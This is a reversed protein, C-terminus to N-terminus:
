HRRAQGQCGAVGQLPQAATKFRGGNSDDFSFKDAIYDFLGLTVGLFSSVVAINAFVNLLTSLKEGGGVEGLVSMLDGMNGGAGIISKFQDRPINGMTVMLWLVYIVLSILSGYLLCKRIRAPDKGYHKVLSPVNSHYGFSTLYYPITALLFPLYSPKNDLLVPLQVHVTLNGVSLLFSILMGGLLVTTVRGVLATSSWVIFALGFAFLLGALMPPLSLGLGRELTHSVISGGGSIYAYTLIYLVFMLTLGNFTNWRRGLTAKVFTDFSSGPPFNLNTELIMLSSHFMCFWTFILLLLSWNFWMGSSVIPLSFMGAGVSTGM